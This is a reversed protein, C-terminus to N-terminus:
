SIEFLRNFENIKNNRMRELRAQSFLYKNADLRNYAGVLKKVKDVTPLNWDDPSLACCQSMIFRDIDALSHLEEYHEIQIPENYDHFNEIM